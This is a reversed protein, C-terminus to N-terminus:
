FYKSITSAAPLPLNASIVEYCAKGAMIYIYIAFDTILDTYRNNNASKEYNNLATNIMAQLLVSFGPHEFASNENSRPQIQAAKLIQLRHGILFRFKKSESADKYAKIHPCGTDLNEFISPNIEQELQSLQLETLGYLNGPTDFGSKRM